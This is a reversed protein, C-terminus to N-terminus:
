EVASLLHKYHEVTEFHATLKRRMAVMVKQPIRKKLFIWYLMLMMFYLLPLASSIAAFWMQFYCPIKNQTSMSDGIAFLMGISLFSLFISDLTYRTHCRQPHIISVSLALLTLSLGVAIYAYYSNMIPIQVIAIVRVVLFLGAFYRYDKTNETGDKYHGHFVDLYIRLGPSNCKTKNLIRQCYQCPYLLLLLTPFVVLVISLVLALLAYPFHRSSNFYPTDGALYVYYQTSQEGDAYYLPTPLLLDLSVSQVKVVSLLYLTSFSQILTSRIDLDHFIPRLIKRLPKWLCVVVKCNRSYLTVLYYTIVVMLLPYLAILYDLALSQVITMHPHLCFPEYFLRFFDLNWIGIISAYVNVFWKTNTYTNYEHSNVVLRLVTPISFLQCFLIYGHLYTSTASIHFAIIAASFLTLPGFAIATYKLWKQYGYESCNVCNLSYSYVPPAFGEQCRGCLQGERNLGACMFKNLESINCPLPFYQLVKDVSTTLLCGGMVDRHRTRNQSTTICYFPLLLPQDTGPQFHLVNMYSNGQQCTGEKHLYWPQCQLVKNSSSVSANSTSFQTGSSETTVDQHQKNLYSSCNMGAISSIWNSDLGYSLNLLLCLLTTVIVVKM